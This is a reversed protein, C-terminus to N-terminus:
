VGRDKGSDVEPSRSTSGSGPRRGGRPEPSAFEEALPLAERISRVHVERQPFAIEIGAERFADDIALHLSHRAAVFDGVDKVFARLEFNLASDGFEVFFAAPRPEDLVLPDRKAVELLLRQALRTDSGYAIGVPIVVRILQDSLSWNVIQGTIFEKNPIVIEKRNWDTVTTARIQIRSVTGEVGGVTVTDGLRIPREFLLILGSVFNAFIEQLGFGLGVTVAAALWQIKSWSVGVAQFAIILGVITVLYRVVTTIAYREGPRLRLRLLLLIELLGPLNKAAIFTGLLVLATVGLDALTVDTLTQRAVLQETGDPASIVESVNASTTWLKVRQLFSLAPVVDVWVFWVGVLFVVVALARLLQRSQAGISALQVQVDEAPVAAGGEKAAASTEAERMRRRAEAIAVRRRSILVVRLACAYLVSTAVVLTLSLRLRASLHVATYYYGAVSLVVFVLAPGVGLVPWLSRLRALWGGPHGAALDRLIGLRPHVILWAVYAFVLQGIVFALRGLSNQWETEGTNELLTVVFLLPLAAIILPALRRRLRQPGTGAWGLHREALGEPRCVQRLFEVYLLALSLRQLGAGAARSFEPAELAAGLTGGAVWFVAPWVAALLLTLAAAAVTPEVSVCTPKAALAGYAEIRACIRRRTVLITLFFLLFCGNLVPGRRAGRLLADLIPAWNSPSLLWHLAEGTRAVDSWAPPSGSRIWHIHEGIYERFAALRDILLREDNDLDVLKRFYTEYDDALADVLGRRAQLLERVAPELDQTQIEDSVGMETLAAQVLGEIDVLEGRADDLELMKVHIASMETQRDESARQHRKSDPLAGGQRRLLLGM